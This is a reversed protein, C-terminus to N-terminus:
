GCCGAGCATRVRDGRLGFQWRSSGRKGDNWRRAAERGVLSVGHFDGLGQEADGVFGADDFEGALQGGEADLQQGGAAGGLGQAFGAQRHGVDGVVGAEGFHEVAADLGQVGLHVAADEGAAVQGLVQGLEFLVVNRADVQHHDVEVGELGGDGLGVAGQFVGDLVDVDAARGHDACRGLVVAVFGAADADHGFRGVVRGDDGFQLGVGARQAVLGAEVEGALGEGVGGAVVRGDGVVEGGERLVAALHGVRLAELQGEVLHLVEAVALVGVLGRGEVALGAGRGAGDGGVGLHLALLQRVVVDGVGVRRPFADLGEVAVAPAQTM